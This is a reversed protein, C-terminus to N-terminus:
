SNAERTKIRELAEPLRSRIFEYRKALSKFRLSRVVDETLLEMIREPTIIGLITFWPYSELLKRFLKKEDYHGVYDQKGELVELCEEPPYHYDWMLGCMLELKREYSFM